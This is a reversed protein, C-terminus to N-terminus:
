SYYKSSAKLLFIEDIGIKSSYRILFSYQMNDFAEADVSIIM